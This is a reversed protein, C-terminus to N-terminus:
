GCRWEPISAIEYYNGKQEDYAYTDNEYIIILLNLTDIANQYEDRREIYEDIIEQCNRMDELTKVLTQYHKEKEIEKNYSDVKEKFDAIAEHLYTLKCPENPKDFSIYRYLQQYIVTNRSFSMLDVGNKAFTVYSSM